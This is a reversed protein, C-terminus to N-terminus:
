DFLDELVSSKNNLTIETTIDYFENHLHTGISSIDEHYLYPMDDIEVSDIKDYLENPDLRLYYGFLAVADICYANTTLLLEKPTYPRSYITQLYSDFTVIDNGLDIKKIHPYAADISPSHEITFYVTTHQSLLGLLFFVQISVDGITDNTKKSKLKEEESLTFSTSCLIITNQEKINNKEKEETINENNQNNEKMRSVSSPPTESSSSSEERIICQSYINM